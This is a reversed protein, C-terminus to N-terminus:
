HRAADGVTEVDAAVDVPRQEVVELPGLAVLRPEAEDLDVPLRERARGLGARRPEAGEGLGVTQGLVPRVTGECGGSTATPAPHSSPIPISRPVTSTTSSSALM